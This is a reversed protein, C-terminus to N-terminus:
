AVAALESVTGIGWELYFAPSRSLSPFSIRADGVSKVFLAIANTTAGLESCEPLGEGLDQGTARERSMRLRNCRM